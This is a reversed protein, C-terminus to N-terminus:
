MVTMNPMCIVKLTADSDDEDSALSAAPAQVSFPYSTSDETARRVRPSRSTEDEAGGQESNAEFMLPPLSTHAWSVSRTHRSARCQTM